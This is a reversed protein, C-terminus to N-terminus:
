APSVISGGRKAVRNVIQALGQEPNADQHERDGYTWECILVDANWPPTTPENLSPQGYRGIDGSFAVVIKKGGEGITLELSSSGLIHGADFSAVHFEPSIDFGGLRPM